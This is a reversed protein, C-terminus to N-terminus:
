LLLNFFKKKTKLIGRILPLHAFFLCLVISSTLSKARFIVFFIICVIILTNITIKENSFNALLFREWYSKDKYKRIAFLVPFVGFYFLLFSIISFMEQAEKSSFCSPPFMLEICSIILSFIAGMWTFGWPLDVTKIEKKKEAPKEEEREKKSNEDIVTYLGDKKAIKKYFFFGAILTLFVVAVSLSIITIKKKDFEKQNGETKRNDLDTSSEFNEINETNTKDLM